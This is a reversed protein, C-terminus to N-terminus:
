VKEGAYLIPCACAKLADVAAVCVNKSRLENKAVVAKQGDATITVGSETGVNGTEHMYAAQLLLARKIARSTDDLHREIIRNKIEQAGTAYICGDYVSAHLDFLFARANAGYEKVLDLGRETKLEEASIEVPYGNEM